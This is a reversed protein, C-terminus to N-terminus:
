LRKVSPDRGCGEGSAQTCRARMAPSTPASRRSLTALCVPASRDVRERREAAVEGVEHALHVAKGPQGQDAGVRATLATQDLRRDRAGGSGRHRLLRAAVACRVARQARFRGVGCSAGENAGAAHAGHGIATNGFPSEGCGDGHNHVVLVPVKIQDLAVGAMGGLWVSSTLVVGAVGPPGIRAAANAASISGRSTGVLWVLVPARRKLMAIIGAIDDAHQSSQRFQPATGRAQDSPADAVAVNIAQASFRDAVRLLFNNRVSAVVGNGGPFLIVSAVASPSATFYVPQTVGPRTPVDIREQAAAGGGLAALLFLAVAVSGRM